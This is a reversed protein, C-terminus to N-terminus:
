SVTSITVQKNLSLWYYCTSVLLQRLPEFGIPKQLFSNAGMRYCEEMEEESADSSVMVVPVTQWFPHQKLLQLVQAGDQGPMHRDLLILGPREQTRLAHHRLDNGSEFFRLTYDPLFRKFVIQVLLRYDPSDDVIYLLPTKEM